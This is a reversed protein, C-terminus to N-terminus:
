FSIKKEHFCISYFFSCSHWLFFFLLLLTSVFNALIQIRNRKRYKLLLGCGEGIVYGDVVSDLVDAAGKGVKVHVDDDEGFTMLTDNSTCCFCVDQKVIRLVFFYFHWVKHLLLELLYLQHLTNLPFSYHISSLLNIPHHLLHFLTQPPILQLPSSSAPLPHIM